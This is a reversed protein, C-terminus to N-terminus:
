RHTDKTVTDLIQILKNSTESKSANAIISALMSPIDHQLTPISGCTTGLLEPCCGPHHNTAHNSEDDCVKHPKKSSLLASLVGAKLASFIRLCPSCVRLHLCGYRTLGPQPDSGPLSFTTIPLSQSQALAKDLHNAIAGLCRYARVSAEAPRSKTVLALGTCSDGAPLSLLLMSSEAAECGEHQLAGSRLDLFEFSWLAKRSIGNLHM